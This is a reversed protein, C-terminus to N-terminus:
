DMKFFLRSSIYFLEDWKTGATEYYQCWNTVNIKATRVRATIAALGYGKTDPKQCVSCNKIFDYVKNYVNRFYVKESLIEVTSIVAGTDLCASLKMVAIM